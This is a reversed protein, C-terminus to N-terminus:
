EFQQVRGFGNKKIVVYCNRLNIPRNIMVGFGSFTKYLLMRLHHLFLRIWVAVLLRKTAFIIAVLRFTKETRVGLAKKREELRLFGKIILPSIYHM